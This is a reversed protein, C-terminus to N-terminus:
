KASRKVSNRAELLRRLAEALALGEAKAYDRFATYDEVTLRLTMMIKPVPCKTQM